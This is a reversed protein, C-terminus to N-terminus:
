NIINHLSLASVKARTAPLTTWGHCKFLKADSEQIFEKRVKNHKKYNVGFNILQSKTMNGPMVSTYLTLLDDWTKGQM